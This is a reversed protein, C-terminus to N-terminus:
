GGPHFGMPGWAGLGGSWHSRSTTSGKRLPFGVDNQAVPDTPCTSPIVGSSASRRRCSGSRATPRTWRGASRRGSGALQAVAVHVPEGMHVVDVPDGEDHGHATGDDPDAAPVADVAAGGLDGEVDGVVVLAFADARDQELVEGGDCLFGAHLLEGGLDERLVAAHEVDELLRPVRDVVVELVAHDLHREVDPRGVLRVGDAHGPLM